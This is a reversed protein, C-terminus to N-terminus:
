HGPKHRHEPYLHEADEHEERNQTIAFETEKQDLPLGRERKERISKTLEEDTRFDLDFQKPESQRPGEKTQRM